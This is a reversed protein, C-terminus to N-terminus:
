YPDLGNTPKCTDTDCYTRGFADFDYELVDDTLGGGLTGVFRVSHGPSMLRLNLGFRYSSLSYSSSTLPATSDVTVNGYEFMAEFAAANNVRYGPRLGVAAGSQAEGAPFHQPHALPALLGGTVLGYFGRMPPEVKEPKKPPP